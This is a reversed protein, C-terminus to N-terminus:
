YGVERDHRDWWLMIAMIFDHDNTLVVLARRDNAPNIFFYYDVGFMFNSVNSQKLWREFLLQEDIFVNSIMLSRKTSDVYIRV